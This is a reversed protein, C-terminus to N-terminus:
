ETWPENRELCDALETYLARLDAQSPETKRGRTLAARIRESLCGRRLRDEALRLYPEGGPEVDAAYRELLALLLSRADVVGSVLGGGGVEAAGGREVVAGYDAILETREPLDREGALLERTLGVLCARVFVACAVDMRVCEQTDLVRIEIADRMFRVIAGRSNVWEHRLRAAEPVEALAQYIPRLIDGRYRRYSTMYEPIVDGAHLPFRAQNHRYFVLRNDVAPGLRGEYVPSSATLAPLYPLLITIANHLAVTEAESGFPLNLHCSQVNMWGHTKLNFLKSYTEYIARGSRKWTKGQAPDMWPHMATPLLRADFEDRLVRSAESVGEFLIAEAEPLGSKPRATKVEFVHDALENSFEAQGCAVDSAPRGALRRFLPEVLSVVELDSRRVTPYELEVGVVEFLRYAASM